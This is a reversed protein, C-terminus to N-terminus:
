AYRIWGKMRENKRKKIMVEGLMLMSCRDGCGNQVPRPIPLPCMSGSSHSHLKKLDVCYSWGVVGRLASASTMLADKSLIYRTALSLTHYICYYTNTLNWSAVISAKVLGASFYAHDRHKADFDSGCTRRLQGNAVEMAQNETFEQMGFCIQAQGGLLCGPELCSSVNSRVSVQDFGCTMDQVHEERLTPLM